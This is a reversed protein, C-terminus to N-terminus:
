PGHSQTPECHVVRERGNGQRSCAKDLCKPPLKWHQPNPRPPAQRLIPPTSQATTELPHFSTTTATLIPATDQSKESYVGRVAPQAKRQKASTMAM